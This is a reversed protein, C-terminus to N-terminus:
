SGTSAGGGSGGGNGSVPVWGAPCTTGAVTQTQISGARVRVCTIGGKFMKKESNSLARSGLKSMLKLKM